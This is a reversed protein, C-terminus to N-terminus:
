LLLPAARLDFRTQTHGYVKLNYHAQATCHLRWLRTTTLSVSNGTYFVQYYSSGVLHSKSPFRHLLPHHLAVALASSPSGLM